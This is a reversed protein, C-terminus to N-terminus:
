QTASDPPPLRYTHSREVSAVRPITELSQASAEEISGSIVGIAAHVENVQMGNARLETVVDTIANGLHEDDVAVTIEITPPVM